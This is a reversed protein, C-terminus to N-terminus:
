ESANDMDELYTEIAAVIRNREVTSTARGHGKMTKKSHILMTSLGGGNISIEFNGTFADDEKGEVIIRKSLTPNKM